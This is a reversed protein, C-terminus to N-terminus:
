KFSVIVKSQKIEKFAITRSNNKGIVISDDSAEKLEGEIIEGDNMEIKLSRGLNKKYQRLLTIPFDLGPSSVELTYKGSILDLEELEAGLHRSTKSCQDISIGQDGDIFVLVKQNGTNGKVVVDVLFLDEEEALFGEVIEKIKGEILKEIIFSPVATGESRFVLKNQLVLFSIILDLM